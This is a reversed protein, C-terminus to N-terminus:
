GFEGDFIAPDRDGVISILSDLKLTNPGTRKLLGADWAAIFLRFFDDKYPEHHFHDGNTDRARVLPIIENVIEDISVRDCEDALKLLLDATAKDKEGLALRRYRIARANSM